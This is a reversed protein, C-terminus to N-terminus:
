DARSNVWLQLSFLQISVKGLPILAIHFAVLRPWSKFEHRRTWKRRRYGNCWPSWHKHVHLLDFQKGFLFFYSVMTSATLIYFWSARISNSLFFTDHLYHSIISSGFWSFILLITSFSVKLYKLIISAFIPSSLFFPETPLINAFSRPSRPEIGPRTM